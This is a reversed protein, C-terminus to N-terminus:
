RGGFRPPRRESFAAVGEAFDASSAAAVQAAAEAELQEDLTRGAAGTLLQKTLGIALTPGAALEDAWGAAAQELEDDLVIRHVLGRRLADEAGVRNNSVLWEFAAADGILGPLTQSLGSDPALAIGLFAPVLVASAGAIRLDCALALALGAGAAPGNIAAVVPKPLRRISRIAPNFRRRLLDGVAEATSPFEGVDQGVCFGRGAGTLV